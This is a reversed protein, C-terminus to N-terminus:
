DEYITKFSKGWEKLRLFYVENDRADPWLTLLVFEETKSKNELWHFVGGPIFAVMGPKFDISDDDMHLVAEGKMCIYIEPKEHVGGGTRCGPALTGENINIAREGAVDDDMLLKSSYTESCVFAKVEAPNIVKGKKKMFKGEM